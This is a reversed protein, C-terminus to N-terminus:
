GLYTNAGHSAAGNPPLNLRANRIPRGNVLDSRVAYVMGAPTESGVIRTEVKVGQGAWYRAVKRAIREAGDLSLTDPTAM